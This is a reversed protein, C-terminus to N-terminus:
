LFVFTLLLERKIVSISSYAAKTYLILLVYM